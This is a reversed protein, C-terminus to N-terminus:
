RVGHVERIDRGQFPRAKPVLAAGRSFEQPSHLRGSGSQRDERRRGQLFFCMLNEKSSQHNSLDGFTNRQEELILLNVYFRVHSMEMRVDAANERRGREVVLDACVPLQHRLPRSEKSAQAVVQLRDEDAFFSHTKGNDM